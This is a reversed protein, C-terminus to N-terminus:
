FCVLRFSSFYYGCRIYNFLRGFPKKSGASKQQNQDIVADAM